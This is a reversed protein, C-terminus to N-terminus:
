LKQSKTSLKFVSLSSFYSKNKLKNILIIVVMRWTVTYIKISVAYLGCIGSVNKEQLEKVSGYLSDECRIWQLLYRKSASSAWFESYWSGPLIGSFFSFYKLWKRCM